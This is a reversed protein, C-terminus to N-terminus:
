RENSEVRQLARANRAASIVFVSTLGVVACIGGVDLLWLPEIGPIAFPPRRDMFLAGAALLIRLETPGIGAFSIRFVGGAHTALYSEAAVLLYAALVMLAILPQMRDSCAMGALVCTTGVLDIVHDVYFGYRPRERARVRALTGDLSDGLWNLALACAVATARLPTSHIAAFAVGAGIMSALGLLTLHDPTVWEPLRRATNQLLRKEATALVSRHDRVHIASTNM